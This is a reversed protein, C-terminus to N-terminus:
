KGFVIGGNNRSPSSGFNVEGGQARPAAFPLRCCTFVVGTHGLNSVNDTQDEFVRSKLGCIAYGGPCTEFDSWSSFDPIETQAIGDGPLTVLDVCRMGLNLGGSPDYGVSTPPRCIIGDPCTFNAGGTTTSDLIFFESLYRASNLFRDGPCAKLSKWGFGLASGGGVRTINNAVRSSVVGITVSPDNYHACSMRIGMLGVDDDLLCRRDCIPAVLLQFAVAYAGVPCLETSGFEGRISNSIPTITTQM